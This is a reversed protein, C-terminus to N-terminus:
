DNFDDKKTLMSIGFDISPFGMQITKMQTELNKIKDEIYQKEDSHADVTYKLLALRLLCSDKNLSWLMCDEGMCEVDSCIQKRYSILPCCSM